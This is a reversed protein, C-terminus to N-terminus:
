DKPLISGILGLVGGGLLFFAGLGISGGIDVFIPFFGGFQEGITMLTFLATMPGLITTYFLLLFMIGLALPVLSFIIGVVRSKLGVLQLVGSVLWVIFLVLMLYFIIADAGLMAPDITIIDILNLTFGLGSGVIGP